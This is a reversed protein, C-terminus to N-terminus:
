DAADSGWGRFEAMAYFATAYETERVLEIAPRVGDAVLDDLLRHVSDVHRAIEATVWGPSVGYRLVNDTAPQDRERAFSALDNALRNAVVYEALAPVLADLHDLVGDGEYTIWRPMVSVWAAISDAHALYERLGADDRRGSRAAQWEWRMSDLMSDFKEIWLGSLAPYLPWAAIDRQWNSLATLLWHSDDRGGRVVNALRRMLDDLRAADCPAFTEVYDDFAFIWLYMRMCPIVEAPTRWPSVAAGSIAMAEVPVTCFQPSQAAVWARSDALLALALAAIDAAERGSAVCDIGRRRGLAASGPVATTLAESSSRVAVSGGAAWPVPRSGDAM